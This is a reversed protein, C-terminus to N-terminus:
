GLNRYVLAKKWLSLGNTTLAITELGLRRLGDLHEILPVLKRDITPEGGTLRIKRVGGLAVLCTTLRKLEQLSLCKDSETLDIGEAPMCYGCRLNCKETLSVRLYDHVRGFNDILRKQEGFPRSASTSLKAIQWFSRIM